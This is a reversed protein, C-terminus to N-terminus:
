RYKSKNTMVKGQEMNQIEKSIWISALHVSPFGSTTAEWIRKWREWGINVKLGSSQSSVLIGLNLTGNCFSRRWTTSTRTRRVPSVDHWIYPIRLATYERKITYWPFNIQISITFPSLYRTLYRSSMSTGLWPSPAKHSRLDKSIWSIIM